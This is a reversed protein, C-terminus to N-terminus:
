TVPSVKENRVHGVGGVHGIDASLGEDSSELSIPKM